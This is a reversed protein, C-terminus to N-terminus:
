LTHTRDTSGALIEDSKVLKPKGPGRARKYARSVAKAAKKAARDGLVDGNWSGLNFGEESPQGPDSVVISYWM